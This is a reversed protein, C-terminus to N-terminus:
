YRFRNLRFIVEPPCSGDNKRWYASKVVGMDQGVQEMRQIFSKPERTSGWQLAIENQWVTIPYVTTSSGSTWTHPYLRKIEPQKKIIKLFEDIKAEFDLNIESSAKVYNSPYKTFTRKM